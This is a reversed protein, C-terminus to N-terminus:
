QDSSKVRKLLSMLGYMRIWYLFYILALIISISASALITSKRFIPYIFASFLGGLFFGTILLIQLKIRKKLFPIGALRNGIQIGLDTFLGTVHTTRIVAGSYTTAMANQIGCAFATLGYALYPSLDLIFWVIILIIGEIMLSVGYRRGLHLNSDRILFGSVVSGLIFLIIILATLGALTWDRDVLALAFNTTSGTLHSVPLSLPELLMFANLSGASYTLLFAAIGVWAPLKSFM